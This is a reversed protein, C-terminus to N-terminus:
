PAYGEVSISHSYQLKELGVDQAAQPINAVAPEFSEMFLRSACGVRHKSNALDRVM